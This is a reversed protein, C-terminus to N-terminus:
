KREAALGFLLAFIGAIILGAPIFILGAGISIASAGLIQLTTAMVARSLSNHFLNSM